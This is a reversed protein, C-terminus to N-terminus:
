NEIDRYIVNEYQLRWRDMQNMISVSMIQDIIANSTHISNYRSLKSYEFKCNM